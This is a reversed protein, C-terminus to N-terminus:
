PRRFFQAAAASTHAALAEVSENRMTALAEATVRTHAPECRQGRHPVPALFPCDTELFFSGAPLKSATERATAANKFTIIGTFSVNFGLDLLSHAQELSGGFCHFVARLRGSYPRLISLTDDWSDRQHVVVNLRTELALELQQEFFLAQRARNARGSATTADQEARHYDLGTEGIAVVSPHKTLARLPTLIDDPSEDVHCPHVGISASIEAHVEALAVARSSGEVSTSITILQSVGAEKARALVEPLDASYDPFDLHAHTDTLM